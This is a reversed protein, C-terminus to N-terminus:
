QVRTTTPGGAHLMQLLQALQPQAPQGGAAPQEAGAGPMAIGPQTEPAGPPAQQAQRAQADNQVKIVAQALEMQDTGVYQIISAVDSPPLQGASAMQQVSALLAQELAEATVQDKEREPDEIMPDIQRATHKSMEGIGIRQGIGVILSNADAGMHPYRVYHVDSQFLDVPNYSGTIQKGALTVYFSKTKNFYAKDIAIARRNEENLSESLIEQAEQVPFDLVASLLVESRRGTRINTGAEGTVDTPIGATLRQARELRDITPNTQFGPQINVDKIDGGKVVNVKGTRGDYPGDIFAAIENPRSVLYTDPFIGKEVAIVELAMLRAQLQYVGVMGDFQGQPRDLTIRGPVVVPCVGARNPLRLLEVSDLRGDDWEWDPRGTSVAGLVHEESDVYELMDYTKDPGNDSGYLLPALNPFHNQIWSYSRKYAFICDPPTLEDPDHTPAPFTTLPNRINWEPGDEGPRIMVPTCGFGILWRARRRMKLTMKNDGWWALVAQRRLNAAKEYQKYGPKEPLFRVDPVTSAIRQATQDLGQQLLNAIWTKETRDMQPLPITVDGNYVKQVERMRDVWPEQDNRRQKWMRIIDQFATTV